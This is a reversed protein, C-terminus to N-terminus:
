RPAPPPAARAPCPPRPASPPRPRPWVSGAPAGEQGRGPSPWGGPHRFRVLGHGELERHGWIPDVEPETSLGQFVDIQRPDVRPLLAQNADLHACTTTAEELLHLIPDERLCLGPTLQQGTPQCNQQPVPEPLASVLPTSLHPPSVPMCPIAIPCLSYHTSCTHSHPPPSSWVCFSSCSCLLHPLSFAEWAFVLVEWHRSVVTKGARLTGQKQGM